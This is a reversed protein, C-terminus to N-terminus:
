QNLTTFVPVWAVNTPVLECCREVVDNFCVGGSVRLSTAYPDSEGARQVECKLIANTGDGFGGGEAQDAEAKKTETRHPMPPPILQSRMRIKSHADAETV